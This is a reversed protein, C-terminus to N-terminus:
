SESTPAGVSGMTGRVTGKGSWEGFRNKTKEKYSINAAALADKIQSFKKLDTGIWLSESNILTFM